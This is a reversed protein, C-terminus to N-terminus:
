LHIQIIKENNEHENSDIIPENQNSKGNLSDRNSFIASQDYLIKLYELNKPNKYFRDKNQEKKTKQSHKTNKKTISIKEHFLQLKKYIFNIEICQRILQSNTIDISQSWNFKKPQKVINVIFLLIYSCTDYDKRKYVTIYINMLIETLQTIQEITNEYIIQFNKSTRYQLLMFKWILWM